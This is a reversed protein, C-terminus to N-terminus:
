AGREEVGNYAINNNKSKSSTVVGKTALDQIRQCLALPDRPGELALLYAALGAVHPSAQSTGSLVATSGNNYTSVIRVGPAFVDISDGWNSFAARRDNADTAGVACAGPANAPSFNTANANSNGAAVALFMGATVASAAAASLPTDAKTTYVGLSINTVAKGIRGKSRADELAWQLGAIVQSIAGSGNPGLVKVAILNTKKAVGYTASGVIGAVHTGHGNEDDDDDDDDDNSATSTTATATDAASDNAFNAGFSARGGFEPHDVHIGTDLIYAFTGEGASDDYTYETAGPARHSIRALNWPAPTQTTLSAVSVKVDPTVYAVENIDAVSKMVDDSASFSYGQFGGMAYSHVPTVGGLAGTVTGFLQTSTNDPKLVAIWKGPIAEGDTQLIPTALAALPTLLLAALSRM